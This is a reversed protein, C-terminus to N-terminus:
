SAVSGSAVAGPWAPSSPSAPAHGDAVVVAVEVPHEAVEDLPRRLRISEPVAADILADLSDYGLAALMAAIESVNPGIHRPVFNDADARLTPTTTSTM